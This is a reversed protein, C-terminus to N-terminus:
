VCPRIPGNMTLSGITSPWSAAPVTTSTPLAAGPSGAPRVPHAHFGPMGSRVSRAGGLEAEVIDVRAHHEKVRRRHMAARVGSTTCGAAKVNLSGLLTEKVRFPRHDLGERSPRWAAALARIAGPSTATTIPAPGIPMM